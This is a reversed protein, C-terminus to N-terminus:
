SFVLFFGALPNSGSVPHPVGEISQLMETRLNAVLGSKKDPGFFKEYDVAFLASVNRTFAVCCESFWAGRLDLCSSMEAYAGASMKIRPSVSEMSEIWIGLRM